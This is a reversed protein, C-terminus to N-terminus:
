HGISLYSLFNDPIDMDDLARNAINSLSLMMHIQHPSKRTEITNVILAPKRYMIGRWARFTRGTVAAEESADLPGYAGRNYKERVKKVQRALERYFWGRLEKWEKKYGEKWEKKYGLESKPLVREIYDNVYSDVESQLLELLERAPGDIYDPSSDPEFAEQILHYLETLKKNDKNMKNLM